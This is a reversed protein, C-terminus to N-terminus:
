PRKSSCLTSCGTELMSSPIKITTIELVIITTPIITAELTIEVLSLVMALMAVVGELQGQQWQNQLWEQEVRQGIM